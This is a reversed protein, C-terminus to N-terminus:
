LEKSIEKWDSDIEEQVIDEAHYTAYRTSLSAENWIHKFKAMSEEESLIAKDINLSKQGDPNIINCEGTKIKQTDIILYRM